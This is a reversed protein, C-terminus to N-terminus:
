SNADDYTFEALCIGERCPNGGTWLRYGAETASANVAFCTGSVHTEDDTVKGKCGLGRYRQAHINYQAPPPTPTVPGGTPKVGTPYSASQSIGCQNKNRVM